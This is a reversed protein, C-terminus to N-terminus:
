LFYVDVLANANKQLEEKTTSATLMGDLKPHCPVDYKRDIKWWKDALYFFIDRLQWDIEKKLKELSAGDDEQFVRGIRDHVGRRENIKPGSYKPPTWTAADDEKSLSVFMQAPVAPQSEIAQTM